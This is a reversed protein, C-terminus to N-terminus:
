FQFLTLGLGVSSQQHNYDLLTEGYGTFLQLYWRLAEPKAGNVPYTVDLQLSGRRASNMSTRWNLTATARGPLWSAIVESNGVFHMLDPNNGGGGSAEIRRNARLQVGYEGRDFATSVYYRNWSRSLPDNQGNSQHAMGFQAMRWQWGGPLKGLRQPVPVVYIVEPQYDTNRFPSSDQQDWIQWLSQQTFTFWVDANPLVVDEAIKARLSLQLKAEINRYHNVQASAPQEPSNPTNNIRSTLHIPLFYNPMYTRVIFAGRKDEPTLEWFKTFMTSNDMSQPAEDQTKNAAARALPPAEPVMLSLSLGDAATKQEPRYVRDYCALRQTSDADDACGEGTQAQVGSALLALVVCLMSRQKIVHIPKRLQPIPPM